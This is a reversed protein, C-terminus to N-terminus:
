AFIESPLLNVMLTKLVSGNPHITGDTDTISAVQAPFSTNENQM